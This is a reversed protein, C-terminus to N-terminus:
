KLKVTFVTGTKNATSDAWAYSDANKARHLGASETFQDIGQSLFDVDKTDLKIRAITDTELAPDISSVFLFGEDATLAV